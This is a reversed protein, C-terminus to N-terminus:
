NGELMTEVLFTKVVGGRFQTEDVNKLEVGSFYVSKEMRSILESVEQNSWASGVLSLKDAAVPWELVAFFVLAKVDDFGRQCMTGLDDDSSNCANGDGGM